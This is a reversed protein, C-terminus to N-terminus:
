VTTQSVPEGTFAPMVEQAFRRLSPLGGPCNLLVYEAGVDRLTQLKTAIEDPTGYLTGTEAAERTDKFNPRQALRQTRRRGAMRTEIAQEYEARTMVVNLSRAVGVSMPDFTRGRAEVEAKFLAIAEAVQELPAFQGLLMNYGQEAVKKVSAPSGAGM